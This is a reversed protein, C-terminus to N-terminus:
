VERFGLSYLGELVDRPKPSTCIVSNTLPKYRERKGAIAHVVLGNMVDVVPIINIM